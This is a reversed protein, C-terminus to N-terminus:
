RSRASERKRSDVKSRNDDSDGSDKGHEFIWTHALDAVKSVLPLEDRNFSTSTEWGNDTKYIRVLKVSFWTGSENENRWISAKIRGLRIEHLPREQQKPM